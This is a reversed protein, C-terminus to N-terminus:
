DPDTSQGDLTCGIALRALAEDRAAAHRREREPVELAAPVETL